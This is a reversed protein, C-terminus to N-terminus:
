SYWSVLEPKGPPATPFLRGALTPFAPTPPKIGPSPFIGQLLFPCSVGHVSSGLLSCDMPDYLTLRLQAGARHGSNHM